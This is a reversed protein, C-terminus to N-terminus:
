ALGLHRLGRMFNSQLILQQVGSWIEGCNVMKTAIDLALKAIAQVKKRPDNILKQTESMIHDNTKQFLFRIAEIGEERSLADKLIPDSDIDQASIKGKEEILSVLRDFAAMYRQVELDNINEEQNEAM